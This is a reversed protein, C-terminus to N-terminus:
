DTGDEHDLQVVEVLDDMVSVGPASVVDQLRGTGDSDRYMSRVLAVVWGADITVQWEIWAEGDPSM